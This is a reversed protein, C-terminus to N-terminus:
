EREPQVAPIESSGESLEKDSINVERSSMHNVFIKELRYHTKEDEKCHRKFLM